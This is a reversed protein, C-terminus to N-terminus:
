AGCKPCLEIQNKDYHVPERAYAEAYIQKPPIDVKYIDSDGMNPWRKYMHKM